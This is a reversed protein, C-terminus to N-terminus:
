AEYSAKGRALDVSVGSISLIATLGGPTLPLPGSVGPALISEVPLM